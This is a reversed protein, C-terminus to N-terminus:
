VACLSLKILLRHHQILFTEKTFLSNVRTEFYYVVRTKEDTEHKEASFEVKYDTLLPNGEMAYSLSHKENDRVVLRQKSEFKTGDPLPVALARLSGETNKEREVTECSAIMEPFNKQLGDFVGVIEWVKDVPVVIIETVSGAWKGEEQNNAM